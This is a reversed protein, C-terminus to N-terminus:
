DEDEVYVIVDNVDMEFGRRKMAKMLRDVIDLNLRKVSSSDSFLRSMTMKSVGIEKSLEVYTPIARREHPPKEYENAVLRAYYKYLTVELAM